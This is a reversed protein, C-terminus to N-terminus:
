KSPTKMLRPEISAIGVRDKALKRVASEDKMGVASAAMTRVKKPTWLPIRKLKRDSHHQYEDRVVLTRGDASVEYGSLTEKGLFQEGYAMTSRVQRHAWWLRAYEGLGDFLRQSVDKVAHAIKNGMDRLEEASYRHRLEDETKLLSVQRALEWEPVSPGYPDQVPRSDVPHRAGSVRQLAIHLALIEAPLGITAELSGLLNSLDPVGPRRGRKGRQEPSPDRAKPSKRAPRKKVV